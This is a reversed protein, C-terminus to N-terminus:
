QADKEPLAVVHRTITDMAPYLQNMAVVHDGVQLLRPGANVGSELIWPKSWQRGDVSFRVASHQTKAANDYQRYALAWVSGIRYFLPMRGREELSEPVSWHLGDKSHSLYFGDFAGTGPENEDGRIAALYTGPEIQVVTSETSGKNGDAPRPLILPAGWTKGGDASWTVLAQTEKDELERCLCYAWRGDQMVNIPGWAYYHEKLTLIPTPQSWTCGDDTSRVWAVQRTPEDFTVMLLEGGLLRSFYGGPFVGPVASIVRWSRGEDQSRAVHLKGGAHFSMLITGDRGEIWTPWDGPVKDSIESKPRAPGDSPKGLTEDGVEATWDAVQNVTQADNDITLLVIGQIRGAHALRRALECQQRRLDLPMRRGAGYDYLYIGLVIPKGPHEKEVQAVYEEFDATEKAHWMWLNVV